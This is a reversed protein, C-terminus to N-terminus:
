ECILLVKTATERAEKQAQDRELAHREAVGKQESLTQVGSLVDLIVFPCVASLCVSLKDFNNSMFLVWKSVQDFKKQKKELATVTARQAELDRGTDELEGQLRRKSKELKSSNSEAEEFKQQLSDIDRYLKKKM